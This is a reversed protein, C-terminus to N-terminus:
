DRRSWWRRPRERARFHYRRPANMMSCRRSQLMGLVGMLARQVVDRMSERVRYCYVESDESRAYAIMVDLRVLRELTSVEFPFYREGEPNIQYTIGNSSSARGLLERSSRWPDWSGRSQTLEIVLLWRVADQGRLRLFARGLDTVETKNTTDRRALRNELTYIEIDNPREFGNVIRALELQEVLSMTSDRCNLALDLANCAFALAKEEDLLAGRQMVGELYHAFRALKPSWEQFLGAIHHPQANREFERLQQLFHARLANVDIHSHWSPDQARPLRDVEELYDRVEQDFAM